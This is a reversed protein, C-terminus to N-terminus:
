RAAVAVREPTAVQTNEPSGDISNVQTYVQTTAISSHGLLAQVSRLDVGKHLLHAAFSHRLTHPTMQEIGAAKAYGKIILWFGQRTLRDGHHNLFLASSRHNGLLVSRSSHIYQAITERVAPDFPLAREKKVRGVCRIVGQELDVHELDLTVLETVRMGTAYLLQLMARDRVTSPSKGELQALLRDIEDVTAAKPLYKNVHPSDINDTPNRDVLGRLKLFQCFSKVAAVKRAITTPAYSRTRLYVLYSSITGQEVIDLEVPGEHTFKALQALDNQYASITNESFGRETRLHTIFDGVNEMM